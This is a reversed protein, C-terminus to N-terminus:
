FKIEKYDFLSTSNIFKIKKQHFSNIPTEKVKLYLNVLKNFDHEDLNISDGNIYSLIIWFGSFTSIAQKLPEIDKKITYKYLFDKELFYQIHKIMKNFIDFKEDKTNNQIIEYLNNAIEISFFKKSFLAWFQELLFSKDNHHKKLNNKIRFWIYEAVMYEMLSKHLFEVAYENHNLNNKTKVEKFYFSVMVGKLTKNFSPNNISVLLNQFNKVSALKQFQNTTIYEFNSQFINFSLERLMDRLSTKVENGDLGKIFTHSENEWKRNILKDFFKGYLESKTMSEINEIDLFVIMHLLIPQNILEIIHTVKNYYFTEILDKRAM